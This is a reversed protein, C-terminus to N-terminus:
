EIELEFPYETPDGLSAIAQPMDHSVCAARLNKLTLLPSVDTLRPTWSVKIYELEPHQEVFQRFTENTFNCGGAHIEYIKVDKLADMWLSCDTNFVNINWFAKFHSLVAFQDATLSKPLNDISLEFGRHETDVYSTDIGSLPSLDTIQTNAISLDFLRPLREIGAVSTIPLGRVNIRELTPLDFLVSIDTIKPCTQIQVEILQSLAEIGDLSVIPNCHIRFCRLNPLRNLFSLDTLTGQGIATRNGDDRVLWGRTGNSSWDEDWWQGNDNYLWDGAICLRQVKALVSDPLALFDQVKVGDVTFKIECDDPLAGLPSLDTVRTWQLDFFRLKSLAQVGEISDVQTGWIKLEELEPLNQVGEISTYPANSLQLKRLGQMTFAASVDTLSRCDEACLEELDSLYQIGELSELAQNAINLRKLGTLASLGSLDTMTGTPIVEQEGTARNILTYTPPDTSWDSEWEYEDWNVLRDGLLNVDQVYALLASPLTDIEELSYLKVNPEYPRWWENPYEINVNNFSGSEQLLNAQQGLHAPVSLRNGKLGNLPSLDTVGDLDFLEIDYRMGPDLNRLPSLDTLGVISELRIFKVSLDKFTPLSFLKGLHLSALSLGELASWDSLRPCDEIMLDVHNGEKIRKLNQIGNLSTLFDSETIRVNAVDYAPLGELSAIGHLILEGRVTPFQSYDLPIGNGRDNGGGRNWFEFRNVTADKVYPLASGNRDTINLYEYRTIATLGSWDDVESVGFYFYDKNVIDALYDVNNPGAGYFELNRLRPLKVVPSVDYLDFSETILVRWLSKCSELASIDTLNRLGNCEIDALSTHDELGHLSRISNMWELKLRTLKAAGTLFSLDSTNFDQGEFETLGACSSLANLDTLAFCNDIFIKQLQMHNELGSLSTLTHLGNLQLETMATANALCSLDQLGLDNLTVHKLKVCTHLGSADRIGQEGSGTLRLEELAPPGFTSLDAPLEGHLEIFAHKLNQCSNLPSFDMAENEYQFSGLNAGALGNLDSLNCDAIHVYDLKKLGSLDPLTGEVCIVDLFKLNTMYRLFDLDEWKYLSIEEATENDLWHTGSDDRIRNAYHEPEVKAYNAKRVWEENGYLVEMRDGIIFLQHVRALDEPKLGSEEPVRPVETPAPTTVPDSGPDSGSDDQSCRDGFARFLMIGIVALLVVGALCIIWPLLKRNRLADAIRKALEDTSYREAAISHRALLANRILDPPTSDDMAIPIVTTDKSQIAFFREAAPSDETLNGSLFLVIADGKKPKDTERVNIGQRRLADLVPRVAEADQSAYLPYVPQKM